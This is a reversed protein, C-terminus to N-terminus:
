CSCVFILISLHNVKLRMMKRPEESYVLEAQDDDFRMGYQFDADVQDSEEQGRSEDEIANIAV